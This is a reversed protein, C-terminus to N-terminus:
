SSFVTRLSVAPYPSEVFVFLIKPAVVLVFSINPSVNFDVASDLTNM